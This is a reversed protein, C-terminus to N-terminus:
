DEVGELAEDLLLRVIEAKKKGTRAAKGSLKKHMSVPLDVTFRITNTPQSFRNLAPKFWDICAEEIAGLLSPETVCLWAIKIEELPELNQLQHHSKWRQRLNNTRGIYQVVGQSDVVFYIATIVPLKNKQGLELTPLTRIDITSPNM